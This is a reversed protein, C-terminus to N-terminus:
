RKKGHISSPAPSDLFRDIMLYLTSISDIVIHEEPSHQSLNGNAGWVVGNMGYAHLFRADSAGHEGGFVAGPAVAALRDLYPSSQSFFLPEVKEVILEGAIASRIAAVLAEPDDRETYRVDFCAEALDPVQNRSKGAQVTSFNLTRHWHDPDPPSPPEFFTQLRQYDSLLNEIANEGLWPRAAHASKGRAVLKLHLIGKEKIVIKELSGGDLAICFDTRISALVHQAGNAGGIEEDGTILIGFPIDAQGGGRSRCGQIRNKMLVLSLAVAYKDDISGRGYLRGDKEVPQFQGDTGEVVDIHSMLLVPAFNNSPLILISPTGGRDIRQYAIDWRELYDQVFRACREIEEPRSHTSKFRILDRTLAIIEKM